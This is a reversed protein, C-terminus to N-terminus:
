WDLYNYFFRANKVVAKFEEDTFSPDYNRNVLPEVLGAPVVVCDKYTEGCQTVTDENTHPSLTDETLIHLPNRKIHFPGKSPDMILCLMHSGRECQLLAQMFSDTGNKLPSISWRENAKTVLEHDTSNGVADVGYDVATVGDNCTESEMVVGRELWRPVQCAGSMDRIYPMIRAQYVIKTNIPGSMFNEPLNHNVKGRFFLLTVFVLSVVVAVFTTVRLM